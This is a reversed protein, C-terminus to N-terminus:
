FALYGIMQGGHNLQWGVVPSQLQGWQKVTTFMSTVASAQVCLPEQKADTGQDLGLLPVKSAFGPVNLAESKQQM